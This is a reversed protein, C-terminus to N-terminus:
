KLKMYYGCLHPKVGIPFTYTFSKNNVNKWFENYKSANTVWLTDINYNKMEDIVKDLIQKGLGQNRYKENIYLIDISGIKLNYYIYGIKNNKEYYEVLKYNPDKTIITKELFNNLNHNYNLGYVYQLLKRSTNM